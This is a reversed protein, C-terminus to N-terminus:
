GLYDFLSVHPVKARVELAAQQSFKLQQLTVIAETSDADQLNSRESELRLAFKEATSTAEEVQSQVNGYFTLMSNLHASVSSLPALASELAADDNALLAQRLNEISTFVNRDAAPNLFIEAADKAVRFTVGTPHVAVRTAATGQYASWPPTTSLDVTLAAAQDSDGSFLYRGDVQTNALGTMRELIAGIEGALGQRTLATQFGSAGTMGLTRVRDFLSVASQLAQEAADAESKTRGLNVKVQGIRALESQVSMLSAVSDPDDSPAELRKGGAVSRQAKEIRTNLSRLSDLFRDTSADISRIM